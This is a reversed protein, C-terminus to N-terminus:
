FNYGIRFVVPQTRPVQEYSLFDWYVQVKTKKFFKTKVPISKSLGVLGSKQWGTRDRLDSFDQFVARYNQEYGGSVWFSGKLKIDVYSRIGIGEHSVRINNWGRGWGIKYSAGVGIISRDNIKYGLSLGIDSTTPFYTRSKQNQINVGYELRKLFSKTKQKNPRFDPMEDDSSGAIYKGAKDKLKNLEAQAAQLNQQLQQQAGAGGAAIQQQVLTTIQTRTQLGAFDAMNLPVDPDPMSFLSALMSNKRFFDKWVKTKSLLELAKKEIKKPDKLIEKYEKVQASYYYVQKNIKKLQKVMGLKELQKKLQDRRERIFKKIEEAQQFKDKLSGTKAIADKVKGGIGNQDLFKLTTNLSDLNPIFSSAKGRLPNKLNTTLSGYKDKIEALKAKAQLSDKTRLLKKYIREEQAQMKGLVKSSKAVLKDELKESKEAISNAFKQPDLKGLLSDPGSQGYLVPFSLILIALILGRCLNRLTHRSSGTTPQHL